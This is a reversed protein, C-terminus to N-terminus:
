PHDTGSDTSTCLKVTHKPVPVFGTKYCYQLSFVNHFITSTCVLSGIPTDHSIIGYTKTNNIPIPLPIWRHYSQYSAVFHYKARYRHPVFLWHYRYRWYKENYWYRFSLIIMAWFFLLLAQYWCDSTSDLVVASWSLVASPFQYM